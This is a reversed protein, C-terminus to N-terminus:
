ISTAATGACIRHGMGLLFFLFQNSFIRFIRERIKNKLVNEVSVAQAIPQWRWMIQKM